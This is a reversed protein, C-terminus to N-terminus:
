DLYYKFILGQKSLEMLSNKGELEWSGNSNLLFANVATFFLLWSM